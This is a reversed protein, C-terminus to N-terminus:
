RSGSVAGAAFLTVPLESIVLTGARFLHRRTQHLLKVGVLVTFERLIFQSLGELFHPLVARVTGMVAWPLAPMRITGAAAARPCILTTRTGTGTAFMWRGRWSVLGRGAHDLFKRRIFLTKFLRFQALSQRLTALMVALVATGTAFV